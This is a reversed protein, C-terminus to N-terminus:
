ANLGYKYELEDARRWADDERSAYLMPAVMYRLVDKHIWATHKRARRSLALLAITANRAGGCYFRQQFVTPDTYDGDMNCVDILTGYVAIIKLQTLKHFVPPLFQLSGNYALNLVRLQSLAGLAEAAIYVLENNYLVLVELKVLHKFHEPICSLDNFRLDLVTLNTCQETLTRPVDTLRNGNLEIGTLNSFNTLCELLAIQIEDSTAGYRGLSLETVNHTTTMYKSLKARRLLAELNAPPMM